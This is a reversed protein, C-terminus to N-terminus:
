TRNRGGAGLVAPHIRSVVNWVGCRGMLQEEERGPPQMRAAASRAQAQERGSAVSVAVGYTIVVLQVGITARLSGCSRM